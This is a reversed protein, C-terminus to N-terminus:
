GHRCAKCMPRHPKLTKRRCRAKLSRMVRPVAAHWSLSRRSNQVKRSSTPANLRTADSAILRYSYITEPKLDRVTFAHSTKARSDEFRQVRLSSEGFELVSPMAAETTWTVKISTPNEWEIFPGTAVRYPEVALTPEPFVSKTADYRSQIELDTLAREYVLAEHIM